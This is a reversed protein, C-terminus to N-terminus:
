QTSLIYSTWVSINEQIFLLVFFIESMLQINTVHQFYVIKSTNPQVFYALILKPQIKFFFFERAVGCLMHGRLEGVLFQVWAGHM